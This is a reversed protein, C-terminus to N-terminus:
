CYLLSFFSWGGLLIMIVLDACAVIPMYMIFNLLSDGSSHSFGVVLKRNNYGLVM